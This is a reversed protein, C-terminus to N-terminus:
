PPIIIIALLEELHALIEKRGRTRLLVVRRIDENRTNSVPLACERGSLLFRHRPLAFRTATNLEGDEHQFVRQNLNGSHRKGKAQRSKSPTPIFIYETISRVSAVPLPWPCSATIFRIALLIYVRLHTGIITLM